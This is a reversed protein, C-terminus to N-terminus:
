APASPLVLRSKAAGQKKENLQIWVYPSLSFSLAVSRPFMEQWFRAVAETEPDPCDMSLFIPIRHNAHSARHLSALSQNLASPRACALLSVATKEEVPHTEAVPHIEAVSHTEEVSHTEALPHVINQTETFPDKPSRPKFLLHKALLLYALLWACLLVTKWHMKSVM